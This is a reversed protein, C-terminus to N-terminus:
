PRAKRLSQRFDHMPDLFVVASTLVKSFKVYSPVRWLKSEFYERQDEPLVLLGGREPDFGLRCMYARIPEESMANLKAVVEKITDATISTSAMSTGNTVANM